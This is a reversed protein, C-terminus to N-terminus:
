EDEDDPNEDVMSNQEIILKISNKAELIANEHFKNILKVLKGKFEAEVSQLMKLKHSMEMLLQTSANKYNTQFSHALMFVMNTVLNTPINLGRLKNEELKLKRIQAKKFEIEARKKLGDLGIVEMSDSDDEVPEQNSNSIKNKKKELDSIKLDVIPKSKKESVKKAEKKPATKKVIPKTDIYNTENVGTDDQWKKKTIANKLNTDDILGNDDLVLNGRSIAMSVHPNTKGCIQAFQSKTYLAM